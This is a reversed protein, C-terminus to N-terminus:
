QTKDSVLKVFSHLSFPSYNEMLKLRNEGQYNVSPHHVCRGNFFKRKDRIIIKFDTEINTIYPCRSM